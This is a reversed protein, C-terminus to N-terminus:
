RKKGANGYRTWAFYGIGALVALFLLAPIPNTSIGEGSLYSVYRNDKVFGFLADTGSLMACAHNMVLQNSPCQAAVCSHTSCVSDSACDNNDMCGYKVCEHNSAYYGYQCSLASCAHNSCSETDACAGDSCCEYNVCTHNSIYACSGCSLASCAHNVCESNAPCASGDCCSYSVCQRNSVYACSPCIISTCVHNSCDQTNSCDSDAMCQYKACHNNNTCYFGYGCQSDRCCEYPVCKHGSVFGCPCTMGVCVHSECVSGSGCQTDTCCEYPVWTGGVFHGCQQTVPVCQSTCGSELCYQNSPCDGDYSCRYQSLPTIDIGLSQQSCIWDKETSGPMIVQGYACAYYILVTNGENPGPYIGNVTVTKSEGSGLLWGNPDTVSAAFVDGATTKLQVANFWMGMPTGTDIITVQASFSRGQVHCGSAFTATWDFAAAFSALLLVFVLANRM